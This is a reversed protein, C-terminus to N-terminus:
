SRPIESAVRDVFGAVKYCNGYFHLVDINSLDFVEKEYRLPNIKRNYRKDDLGLVSLKRAWKWEKCLLELALQEYLTSCKGRPQVARQMSHSIQSKVRTKKYEVQRVLWAEIFRHVRENFRLFFIGASVNHALRTIAMDFDSDFIHGVDNVVYCDMDIFVARDVGRGVMDKSAVAKYELANFWDTGPKLMPVLQVKDKVPFPHGDTYIIISSAETRVWSDIMLEYADRYSGTCVSFLSYSATM